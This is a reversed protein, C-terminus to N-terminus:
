RLGYNQGCGPTRSFTRAIDMPISQLFCDASRVLHGKQYIKGPYECSCILGRQISVTAYGFHAKRTQQRSRLQMENSM